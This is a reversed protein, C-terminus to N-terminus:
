FGAAAGLLLEEVPAITVLDAGIMGDIVAPGFKGAGLASGAALL